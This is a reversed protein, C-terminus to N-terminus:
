GGVLLLMSRVAQRSVTVAGFVAVAIELGDGLPVM